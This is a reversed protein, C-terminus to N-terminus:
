PHIHSVHSLLITLPCFVTVWLDLMSPNGVQIILTSHLLFCFMLDRLFSPSHVLLQYIVVFLFSMTNMTVSIRYWLIRLHNNEPSFLLSPDPLMLSFWSPHRWCWVLPFTHIPNFYGKCAFVKTSICVWPLAQNCNSWSSSFCIWLFTQSSKEPLM